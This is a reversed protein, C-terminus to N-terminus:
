RPRQAGPQAPGRNGWAQCGPGQTHVPPQLVLSVLCSQGSWGGVSAPRAAPISPGPLVAGTLVRRLAGPRRWQPQANCAPGAPRPGRRRHLRLLVGSSPGGQESDASGTPRRICAGYVRHVHPRAVLGQPHASLPMEGGRGPRGRLLQVQSGSGERSLVKRPLLAPSIPLGPRCKRGKQKTEM